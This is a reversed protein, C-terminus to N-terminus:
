CCLAHRLQVKYRDVEVDLLHLDAPSLLLFTLGPPHPRMSVEGKVGCLPHHVRTHRSTTRSGVTVLEFLSTQGFQTGGSWQGVNPRGCRSRGGGGYETEREM